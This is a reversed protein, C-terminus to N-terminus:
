QVSAMAAMRAGPLVKKNSIKFSGRKKPAPEAEHLKMTELGMPSTPDAGGENSTAATSCTSDNECNASIVEDEDDEDEDDEPLTTLSPSTLSAMGGYFRRRLSTALGLPGVAPTPQRALLAELDEGVASVGRPAPTPGKAPPPPPAQAPAQPIRPLAAPPAAPPTAAPPQSPTAGLSALLAGIELAGARAASMANTAM